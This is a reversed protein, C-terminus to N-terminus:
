GGLENLRTVYAENSPELRTLQTLAYREDADLGASQAAEALRELSAKLQEMDRLWWHARVLLRLAQVNDADGAILEDIVRLLHEQEREALMQESIKAIIAVAEAIKDHHLYLRAVEVFRLYTAPQKSVLSATAREALDPDDAELYATVLLALLECDDPYT